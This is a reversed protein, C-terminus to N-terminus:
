FNSEHPIKTSKILKRLHNYDDNNTEKVGFKLSKHWKSLEKKSVSIMSKKIELLKNKSLTKANGVLIFNPIAESVKVEKLGLHTYEKAIESKVGGFTFEDRIISLAVKDHRGLYRYHNDEININSKKLINNVFLYGCTSLPQTLAIKSHRINEIPISNSIFSVLSCTYSIEGMKNKFNVLPKTDSYKSELSLYPLPGLYAIDIKGEIFKKLIADYSSNYDIKIQTNLKKELYRIMPSFQVHITKIDEMPLPAFVLPKNASLLYVPFFILVITLLKYM